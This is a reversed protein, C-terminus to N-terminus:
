KLHKLDQEHVNLNMDTKIEKKDGFQKPALKSLHWQHFKFQLNVKAIAEPREDVDNVKEWVNDAILLAQIEKAELYQSRFDPWKALWESITTSHPIDDYKACIDKMSLPNSAVYDCFRKAAEPTYDTPRGKPM